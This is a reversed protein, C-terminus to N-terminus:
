QSRGTANRPVARSRTDRFSTAVLYPAAVLTAHLLLAKDRPATVALLVFFLGAAIVRPYWVIPRLCHGRRRERFALAAAATSVVALLAFGASGLEGRATWRFLGWWSALVLVHTTAIGAVGAIVRNRPYSTGGAFFGWGVIGVIPVGLHGPEAWSWLGARVAVVEVLSADLSVIMLVVCARALRGARPLLADAVDRASLVVLPWILPVLLPVSGVFAHWTPHYAYFRYLSICTQEGVYAAIGLSLYDSALARLGRTRAMAAFTMGIVVVCSFEFVAVPVAPAPYKM